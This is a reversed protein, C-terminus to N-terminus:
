AKVARLAQDIIEGITGISKTVMGDKCSPCPEPEPEDGMYSGAIEPMGADMAMDRTVYQGQRMEMIAGSGGCEGCEQEITIPEAKIISIIDDTAMNIAPYDGDIAKFVIDNIKDKM